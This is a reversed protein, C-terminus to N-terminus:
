ISKILTITLKTTGMTDRHILSQSNLYTESSLFLALLHKEIENLM